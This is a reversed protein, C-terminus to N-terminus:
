VLAPRPNVKRRAPLRPQSGSPPRSWVRPLLVQLPFFDELCMTIGARRKENEWAPSTRAVVRAFLNTHSRASSFRALREVALCAVGTLQSAADVLQTIKQEPKPTALRQSSGLIHRRSVTQFTRILSWEPSGRTSLVPRSAGKHGSQAVLFVRDVGRWSNVM